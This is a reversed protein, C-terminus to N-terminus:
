SAREASGTLAAERGPGADHRTARASPMQLPPRPQQLIQRLKACEDDALWADVDAKISELIAPLEMSASGWWGAWIASGSVPIGCSSCEFAALCWFRPQSPDRVPAVRYLRQDDGVRLFVGLGGNGRLEIVQVQKEDM